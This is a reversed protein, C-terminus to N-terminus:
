VECPFEFWANEMHGNVLPSFQPGPQNLAQQTAPLLPPAQVHGQLRRLAVDTGTTQTHRKAVLRLSVLAHAGCIRVM